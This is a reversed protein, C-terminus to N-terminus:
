TSIRRNKRWDLLWSLLGSVCLLIFPILGYVWPALGAGMYIDDLQWHDTGPPIKGRLIDQGFGTVGFAFFCLFPSSSLLLLKTWIRVKDEGELRPATDLRFCRVSERTM